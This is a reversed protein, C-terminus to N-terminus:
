GGKKLIAGKLNPWFHIKVGLQGFGIEWGKLRVKFNVNLGRTGGLKGVKKERVMGVSSLKVFQGL